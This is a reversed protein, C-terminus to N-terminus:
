GGAAATMDFLPLFLSIAVGGVVGGMFVLVLPELIKSLSDIRTQNEEDMWEGVFLLARGVNGSEEGAAVAQVVSPDALPSRALSEALPKGQSIDQQLDILLQRYEPHNTANLTLEVSELLPVRAEVMVGLLRCIRALALSRVVKGLVPLRIALWGVTRRGHRSRLYLVIGILTAALGGACAAGNASLFRSLAMMKATTVPLEVHLTDFLSEFRPLVFVVLLSIVGLCINVLVIPYIAAGILRNRTDLQQKSLECLRNFTEPLTATAEGAAVMSCFVRTFLQPERNMAVSLPAGKEVEDRVHLMGNRWRENNMQRTIAALAPVVGTGVSMLMSMQRAFMVLQRHNSGFGATLKSKLRGLTDGPANETPHHPLTEDVSQIDARRQSGTETSHIPSPLSNEQNTNPQSKTDYALKM